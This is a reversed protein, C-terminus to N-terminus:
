FKISKKTKTQRIDAHEAECEFKVFWTIKWIKINYKFIISNNKDFESIDLEALFLLIIRRFIVNKQRYRWVEM